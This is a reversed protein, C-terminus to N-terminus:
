LVSPSEKKRLVPTNRLWIAGPLVVDPGAFGTVVNVGISSSGPDQRKQNCSQLSQEHYRFPPSLAM